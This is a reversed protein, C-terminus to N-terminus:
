DVYKIETQERLQALTIPENTLICQIDGPTPPNYGLLLHFIFSQYLFPYIFSNSHSLEEETSRRTPKNSLFVIALQDLLKKNEGFGELPIAHPIYVFRVQALFDNIRQEM